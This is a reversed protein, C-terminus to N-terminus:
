KAGGMLRDAWSRLGRRDLAALIIVECDRLDRAEAQLSVYVGADDRGAVYISARRQGNERYLRGYVSPQSYTHLDREGRKHRRMRTNQGLLKIM